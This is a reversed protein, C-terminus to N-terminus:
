TLPEQKFLDMRKGEKICMGKNPNLYIMIYKLAHALKFDKLIQDSSRNVILAIVDIYGKLTIPNGTIFTNKWIKSKYFYSAVERAWEIKEPNAALQDVSVATEVSADTIVERDQFTLDFIKEIYDHFDAYKTVVQNFGNQSSIVYSYKNEYKIAKLLPILDRNCSIVIFININPNKYLDKLADVTLELDGSNKGYNSAHRTQLGLTRFLTQQHHMSKQEFNGYVIFDLINLSDAQLKTQIVKFFNIKLPDFGNKQLLDVINEYDVYVM